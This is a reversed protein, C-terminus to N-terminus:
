NQQAIYLQGKSDQFTLASGLVDYSDVEVDNKLDWVIVFDSEPGQQIRIYIRDKNKGQM